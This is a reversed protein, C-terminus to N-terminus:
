PDKTLIYTHPFGSVLVDFTMQVDGSVKGNYVSGDNAIFTITSGHRTATGSSEVVRTNPTGGQPTDVVTDTENWGTLGFSLTASEFTTVVDAGEVTIPQPPAKGDVSLLHYTGVWSSDISTPDDSCAAFLSVSALTAVSVFARCLNM